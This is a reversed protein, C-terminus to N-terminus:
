HLNIQIPPLGSCAQEANSQESVAYFENYLNQFGLPIVRTKISISSNGHIRYMGTDYGAPQVANFKSGHHKSVNADFKFKLRKRLGFDGHSAVFKFLAKEHLNTLSYYRTVHIPGYVQEKFMFRFNLEYDPHHGVDFVICLEGINRMGFSFASTLPYSSILAVLLIITSKFHKM